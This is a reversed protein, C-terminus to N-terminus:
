LYGPMQPTVSEYDHGKSQEFLPRGGFRTLLDPGFHDSAHAIRRCVELFDHSSATMALLDGEILVQEDVYMARLFNLRTNIENVAEFLGASAEVDAVVVSFLRFTAPENGEVRAYFGSSQTSIFYDDDRDPEAKHIGTLEEILTELHSRAIRHQLSM